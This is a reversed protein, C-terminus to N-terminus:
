ESLKKKLLQNVMDPNAKGKSAKMVQGVFFGFLKDKGSRYEAHQGPNAKIVDDIIQEIAGTDSVQVLGQEKVVTEADKGTKYMEEFVTKAIKTSIVGGEILKIMVPNIESELLVLDGMVMAGGHAPKFAVWGGLALAPRIIVGDLTVSLDTRPFGYRRVDGSVAPKRAFTEDLRQWDVEQASAHASVVMGAILFPVMARM